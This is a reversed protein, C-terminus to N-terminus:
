EKVERALNNTLVPSENYNIIYTEDRKEVAYKHEKGNAKIILIKTNECYMIDEIEEPKMELGKVLIDVAM